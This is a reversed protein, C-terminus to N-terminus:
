RRRRGAVLVPTATARSSPASPPRAAQDRINELRQTHHSLSNVTDILREAPAATRGASPLHEDWSMWVAVLVDGLRPLVGDGPAVIETLVAALEPGVDANRARETLQDLYHHTAQRGEDPTDLTNLGPDLHVSYGAQMLALAAGTAGRRQEEASLVHPQRHYPGRPGPHRIFGGTRQLISAARDDGGIAVVLRTRPDRTITVYTDVFFVPEDGPAQNTM